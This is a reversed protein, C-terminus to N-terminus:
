NSVRRSSGHRLHDGTDPEDHDHGAVVDGPAARPLVPESESYSQQVLFFPLQWLVSSAFSTVLALNQESALLFEYTGYGFLAALFVLLFAKMGLRM